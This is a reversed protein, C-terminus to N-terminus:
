KLEATEGALLFKGIIFTRYEAMFKVCKTIAFNQKPWLWM